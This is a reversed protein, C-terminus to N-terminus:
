IAKGLAFMEVHEAGAQLLIEKCAYLSNGTTTVDDMLLVIDGMINMEQVTSISQMHIQQDRRGGLALKDINRDRRLFYVKDVRGNRALMEALMGIGTVLKSADSSPVVCVTVDRCIEADILDYFYRIASLKGEKLDLIKGSFVDFLPNKINREKDLWYKHYNSYVVIEGTNNWSENIFVM